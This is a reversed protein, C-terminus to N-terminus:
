DGAAAAFGEALAPHLPAEFDLGGKGDEFWAVTAPWTDLGPLSLWVRTGAPLTWASRFGCGDTSIDMLHVTDNHRRQQRVVAIVGARQRRVGRREDMARTCVAALGYGM